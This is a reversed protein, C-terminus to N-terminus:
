PTAAEINIKENQSGNDEPQTSSGTASDRYGSVGDTGIDFTTNQRATRRFRLGSAVGSRPTSTDTQESTEAGVRIAIM